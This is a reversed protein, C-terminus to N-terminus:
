LSSFHFLFTYFDSILILLLTYRTSPDIVTNKEASEASDESNSGANRESKTEATRKSKKRERTAGPEHSEKPEQKDLVDLIQDENLNACGGKRRPIKYSLTLKQKM